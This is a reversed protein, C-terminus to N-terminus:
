VSIVKAKLWAAILPKKADFEPVEATEGKPITVGFICLDSDHHNTVSVVGSSKSAPKAKPAVAKEVPKEEVAKEVPKAAAAKNDTDAMKSEM